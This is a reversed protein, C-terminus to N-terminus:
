SSMHKVGSCPWTCRSNNFMSWLITSRRGIQWTALPERSSCPSSPRSPQWTTCQTGWNALSLTSALTHSMGPPSNGGGWPRRGWSTSTPTPTPENWGRGGTHGPPPSFGFGPCGPPPSLRTGRANAHCVGGTTAEVPKCLQGNGESQQFDRWKGHHTPYGRGGGVAAGAPCGWSATLCSPKTKETPM